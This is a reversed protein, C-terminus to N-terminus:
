ECTYTPSAPDFPDNRTCTHTGLIDTYTWSVPPSGAPGAVGPEGREGQPGAPGPEGQPGAPGDAGPEGAPGQEGAEGPLGPAGAPGTAGLLGPAGAAGPDGKPGPPGPPGQDGQPGPPGAVGPPGPIPAASKVVEAQDCVGRKELERAAADGQDCTDTVQDALQTTAVKDAIQVWTLYGVALVLLIMVATRLRAYHRRTEHETM